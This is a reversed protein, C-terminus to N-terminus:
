KTKVSKVKSWSSYQKKANTIKYTRVRIYYKKNKKLGKVTKKSISQKIIVVTKANKKFKKDVRGIKLEEFSEFSGIGFEKEAVSKMRKKVIDM